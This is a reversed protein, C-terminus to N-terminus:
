ITVHFIRTGKAIGENEMGSGAFGTKYCDTRTYANNKKYVKALVFGQDLLQIMRDGDLVQNKINLFHFVRGDVMVHHDNEVAQSSFHMLASFKTVFFGADEVKKKMADFDVGAGQKFTVTFSSNKIDSDVNDVFSLTRLAKNIANNCMSCTLGGAQIIVKKVEARAGLTGCLFILFIFKKM